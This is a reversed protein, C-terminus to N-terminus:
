WFNNGSPTVSVIIASDDLCYKNVLNNFQLQPLPNVTVTQYASGHCSDEFDVAYTVNHVGVANAPTFTNGNIGQDMEAFIGLFNMVQVVLLAMKM